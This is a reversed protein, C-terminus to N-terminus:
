QGADQLRKLQQEADITVIVDLHPVRIQLAHRPYKATYHALSALALSEFHPLYRDQALRREEIYPQSCVWTRITLISFLELTQNVPLTGSSLLHGVHNLYNLFKEVSKLEEAQLMSFSYHSGQYILSRANIAWDENLIGFQHLAQQLERTQRQEALQAQYAEANKTQAEIAVRLQERQLQSDAHQQRISFLLGLFALGTFLSNVSGFMDGFQGSKGLDRSYLFTALPLLAWLTILIAACLFFARKSL